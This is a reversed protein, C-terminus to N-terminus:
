KEAMVYEGLFICKEIMNNNDFTTFLLMPSSLNQIEDYYCFWIGKKGSEYLHGRYSQIDNFTEPIVHNNLLEQPLMTTIQKKYFQYIEEYGIDGSPTNGGGM